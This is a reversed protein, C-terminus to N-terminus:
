SFVTVCVRLLYIFVIDNLLIALFSFVMLPLLMM